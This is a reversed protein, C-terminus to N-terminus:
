PEPGFLGFSYEGLLAEYLKENLEEQIDYFKSMINM